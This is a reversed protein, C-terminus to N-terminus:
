SHAPLLMWKWCMLPHEQSVTFTLCFIDRGLLSEFWGESGHRISQGNSSDPGSMQQGMNKFVPGPPISIKSTFNVNSINVTCPFVKFHKLYFHNLTGFLVVSVLPFPIQSTYYQTHWEQTVVLLCKLAPMSFVTELVLLCSPVPRYIAENKHFPTKM